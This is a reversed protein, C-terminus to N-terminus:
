SHLKPKQLTMTLLVALFLMLIIMFSVNTLIIMSPRRSNNFLSSNQENVRCYEYKTGVDTSTGEVALASNSAVGRKNANGAYYASCPRHFPVTDTRRDARMDRGAHACLLLGSARRALSISRNSCCRRAFAPLAV